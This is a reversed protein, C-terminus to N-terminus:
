IEFDFQASFNSNKWKIWQNRNAESAEFLQQTQNLPPKLFVINPWYSSTLTSPDQTSNHKQHNQQFCLLTSSLTLFPPFLEFAVLINVPTPWFLLFFSSGYSNQHRFGNRRGKKILVLLMAQQMQTIEVSKSRIRLRKLKKLLIMPTM